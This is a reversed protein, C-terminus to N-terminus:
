RSLSPSPPSDSSRSISAITSKISLTGAACAAALLASSNEFSSNGGGFSTSWGGCVGILGRLCRM